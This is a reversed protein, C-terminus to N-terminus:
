EGILGFLNVATGSVASMADSTNAIVVVAANTNPFMFFQASCGAQSGTHGVTNGLRPNEGYLYWGMGYPNGFTKAGTDHILEEFSARTILKDDMVANAFLLVDEATSLIGGGPIRDSLDTDKDKRVKGKGNSAYLESITERDAQEGWVYTHQMGAPTFVNQHMYEGYTMGSAKEILLGLVVYGYTTYAYKEGPVSELSRKSFIGVADEITEYPVTNSAEKKNAYAGIGSTHALIQRPTIGAWQPYDSLIQTLPADLDIKGKEVLQMVAVATMPKAISAIRVVTESTMQGNDSSAGSAHMWTIEGDDFVGGVVGAVQGSEALDDLLDTASITQDLAALNTAVFVYILFAALLRM